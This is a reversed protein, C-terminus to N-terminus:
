YRAFAFYYRFGTKDTYNFDIRGKTLEARGGNWPIGSFAVTTGSVSYHGSNAGFSYDGHGDMKIIGVTPSPSVCYWNGALGDSGGTSTAPREAARSGVDATSRTRFSGEAPEIRVSYVTNGGYTFTLKYAQYTVVDARGFTQLVQARTSGPGIGSHLMVCNTKLVVDWIEKDQGGVQINIGPYGYSDAVWSQETPSGFRQKIQADTMNLTLGNTLPEVLNGPGNYPSNNSCRGNQRSPPLDRKAEQAPKVPQIEHSQYPRIEHSQYSDVQQAQHPQIQQAHYPQIEQANYQALTFAHQGAQTGAEPKIQTSNYVGSLTDTVPNGRTSNYRGASAYTAKQGAAALMAACLLVGGAINWNGNFKM